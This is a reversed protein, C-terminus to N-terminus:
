THRFISTMFVLRVSLSIMSAMPPVLAVARSQLTVGADTDSQRLVPIGSARRINISSARGSMKLRWGGLRCLVSAM